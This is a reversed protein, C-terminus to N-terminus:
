TQRIAPVDLYDMMCVIQSYPVFLVPTQSTSKVSFASLASQTYEESEIWIGSAELAHVTAMLPGEEKLAPIRMAVTKGILKQLSPRNSESM